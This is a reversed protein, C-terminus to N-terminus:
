CAPVGAALTRLRARWFIWCGGVRWRGMRTRGRAPRWSSLGRASAQASSTSTSMHVICTYVSRHCLVVAGRQLVRRGRYEGRCIRSRIRRSMRQIREGLELGADIFRKAAEGYIRSGGEVSGTFSVHAVRRDAILRATEKHSLVLNTVLGPVDLRGFADEFARGSLPTKASHKLLVSNGALLAARHRERPHHAPLEVRGPSSWAWLRMSSVVTFGRRRRCCTQRWRRRRSASWTTRGNSVTEIERRSQTIPKGMQTSVETAIRESASRFRELGAKVQRIRDELPVERWREFAEHARAVKAELGAGDDYDIRCVIRQDYPNIVELPM